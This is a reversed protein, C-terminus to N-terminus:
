RREILPIYVKGVKAFISDVYPNNGLYSYDESAYVPSGGGTDWLISGNWIDPFVIEKGYCGGGIEYIGSTTRVVQVSGDPDLLTVGVSGVLGTKSGGFAVTKPLTLSM